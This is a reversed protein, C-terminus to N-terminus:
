VYIRFFRINFLVFLLMWFRNWFWDSIWGFDILFRDLISGFDLSFWNEFRLRNKIVLIMLFRIWFRNLIPWFDTWFRDFISKSLSSSTKRSKIRHKTSWLDWFPELISGFDTGFCSRYARRCTDEVIHHNRKKKKNTSALGLARDKTFLIYRCSM